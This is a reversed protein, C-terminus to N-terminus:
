SGRPLHQPGTTKEFARPEGHGRRLPTPSPTSVAAWWTTEWAVASQLHQAQPALAPRPVLVSSAAPSM